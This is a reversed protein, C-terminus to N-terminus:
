PSLGAAEREDQQQHIGEHHQLRGGHAVAHQHLADGEPSISVRGAIM